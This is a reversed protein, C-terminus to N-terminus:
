VLRDPIVEDANAPYDAQSIKGTNLFPFYNCYSFWKKMTYRGKVWERRHM